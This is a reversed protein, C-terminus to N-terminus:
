RKYIGVLQGEALIHGKMAETLKKKNVDGQLDLMQDVAYIKFYYRHTGSGPCPGGYGLNGFDNKGQFAKGTELAPMVPVSQPLSNSKPSLNYVIWHVWTAKPADPDDVIIAVSQTGAPVETWELPPSINKGDCTYLRPIMGNNKFASSKLEMNKNVNTQAFSFYSPQFLLFILLLLIKLM